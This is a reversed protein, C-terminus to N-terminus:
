RPRGSASSEDNRSERCDATLRHGVQRLSAEFQPELISSLADWYTLVSRLDNAGGVNGNASLCKGAPRGAARLIAGTSGCSENNGRLCRFGGCYACVRPVFDDVSAACVGRTQLRVHARNEVMCDVPANTCRSFGFPARWASKCFGGRCDDVKRKARSSDGRLARAPIALSRARFPGGFKASSGKESPGSAATKVIQAVSVGLVLM